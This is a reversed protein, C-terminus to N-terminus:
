DDGSIKLFADDPDFSGKSPLSFCLPIIREFAFNTFAPNEGAGKEILSKLINLSVRVLSPSSHECSRLIGELLSQLQVPDRTLVGEFGQVVLVDLFQIYSKHLKHLNEHVEALPNNWYDPTLYGFVKSTLPYIFSGIMSDFNQKLQINSSRSMKYPFPHLLDILEQTSVPDNAITQFTNLIPLLDEM